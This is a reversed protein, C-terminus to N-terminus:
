VHVIKTGMHYQCVIREKEFNDDFQKQVNDTNLYESVAKPPFDIYGESMTLEAGNGPNYTLLKFDGRRDIEKWKTNHLVNMYSELKDNGIEIYEREEKSYQNLEFELRHKELRAFSKETKLALLSNRLIKTKSFM